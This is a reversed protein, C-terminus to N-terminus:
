VPQGADTQESSNGRYVRFTIKGTQPQPCENAHTTWVAQFPCISDWDPYAVTFTGLHIAHGHKIRRVTIHVETDEEFAFNPESVNPALRLDRMAPLMEANALLHPMVSDRFTEVYTRPKKPPRPFPISQHFGDGPGFVQVTESPFSICVEIDTAPAGGGNELWFECSFSRARADEVKIKTGLAAEHQKYFNDLESNYRAVEQQANAVLMPTVGPSCIFDLPTPEPLRPYEEMLSRMAERIDISPKSPPALLVTCNEDPPNIDDIIPKAVLSLSPLRNKISALEQVAQQYKKREEDQVAPLRLAEDLSICAVGNSKCLLEMGFDGTVILVREDPNAACYKKATLIIQTDQHDPSLHAPIEDDSVQINTVDLSVGDRVQGGATRISHILSIASDARHSLRADYKHKDLEHIVQGCLLIKVTKAKAVSLWDIECLPKYHLLINTDPFLAV